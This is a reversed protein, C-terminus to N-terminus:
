PPSQHRVFCKSLVTTVDLGRSQGQGRERGQRRTGSLVRNLARGAPPDEGKFKSLFNVAAVVISASM